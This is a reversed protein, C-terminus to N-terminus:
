VSRKRARRLALAVLAAAAWYGGSRSPREPGFRCDCGGGGVAGSPDPSADVGGDPGSDLGASDTSADTSADAGADPEPEPSIVKHVRVGDSIADPSVEGAKVARVAFAYRAGDVLALGSVTHKTVNGVDQWASLLGASDAFAIAVQYSVAGAVPAWAGSLRDTTSVDDVDSNDIGHDPDTDIVNAPAPVPPQKLGYLYGDAVSVLIEDLGNGDTDGFVVNGVPSGFDYSFLLTASCPDLGYLWGDSSGVLALSAQTSTESHVSVSGLQALQLGATSAEAEGKWLKGGALVVTVASGAPAGNMDTLKLRAPYQWTGGALVQRTACAAVAAYPFPRDDTETGWLKKSLDHSWAQAHAYSGHLALETVGDGDLDVVTPLHYCANSGGQLLQTGDVGSLVRTGAAQYVVDSRGDGNWDSLAFAAPQRGCGPDVPQASWLTTGNAGALARTRLLTDAPDGHQVVLDPTSDTDLAGAVVDGIPARPLPKSWLTTGDAGLAVVLDQPTAPVPEQQALCAIGPKTGNLGPVIAPALTHTRQWILKPPNALSAQSADLALLASRSDVALVRQPSTADLLGVVPGRQHERWGGSAFYGGTRLGPLAAAQSNTPQLKSDLLVLYGDSRMVALHASPAGFPPVAWARAVEVGPPMEYAGLKKPSGGAVSWASLRSPGSSSAVDTTLLDDIGDADLDATVLRPWQAPSQKQRRAPDSFKLGRVDSLTWKLALKPNAAPDLEWGTLSSSVSQTVLYYGKGTGRSLVGAVTRDPLVALESGSAADLVRTVWVDPASSTSVVLEHKGDGDLDAVSDVFQLDGGSYPALPNNWLVDLTKATADFHLAYARRQNDSPPLPPTGICVIEEGPKGDLDVPKCAAYQAYEGPLSASAVSTGTAGNVVSVSTSTSSVVELPGSGDVDALVLAAHGDGCGSPVAFKWLVKPKTLGSAFSYAGGPSTGSVGCCGCERIALEPTGDGDLDGVRVGGVAGLEGDATAWSPVGTAGALVFVRNTSRAVVEVAGDGDLDQVSILSTVDLADTQWLTAGSPATAFVRGGAVYLVDPSQDANVDVVLLGVDQLEGGLYTRFYPVPSTLNSKGSTAGTRKSDHRSMPWDGTAATSVATAVLLAAM